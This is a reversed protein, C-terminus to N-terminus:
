GGSGPDRRPPSCWCGRIRWGPLVSKLRSRFECEERGPGSGCPIVMWAPGGPKGGRARIALSAARTRQIRFDVHGLAIEDGVNEGGYAGHDARNRHEAIVTVHMEGLRLIRQQQGLEGHELGDGALVVPQGELGGILLSLTDVALDSSCVDSSWDRSFRTHRRRSSFFFCC